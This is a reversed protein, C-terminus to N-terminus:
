AFNVQDTDHRAGVEKLGDCVKSAVHRIRCSVVVVDAVADECRDFIIIPTRNREGDGYTVADHVKTADDGLFSRPLRCNDCGFANGADFFNVIMKAPNFEDRACIKLGSISLLQFSHNLEDVSPGFGHLMMKVRDDPDVMQLGPDEMETKGAEILDDKMGVHRRPMNMVLGIRDAAAVDMFALFEQFLHQVGHAIGAFDEDESRGASFDFECFINAPVIRCYATSDDRNFGGVMGAIGLDDGVRLSMELNADDM